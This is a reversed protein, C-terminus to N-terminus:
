RATGVLEDKMPRMDLTWRPTEAYHAARLAAAVSHLAARAQEHTLGPQLRAVADLYQSGRADPTRQRPTFAIPIWADVQKPFTSSASMIGVIRYPRDDLSITRGIVGADAGFRRRWLGDGLVVADNQNPADEDATFWRGIAVRLGLVPQFSHTVRAVELRE